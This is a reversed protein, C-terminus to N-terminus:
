YVCVWDLVCHVTAGIDSALSANLVIEVCCSAFVPPHAQPRANATLFLTMTSTLVQLALGALEATSM